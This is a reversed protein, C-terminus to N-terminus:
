DRFSSLLFSVQGVPKEADGGGNRLLLFKMYTRSKPLKEIKYRM